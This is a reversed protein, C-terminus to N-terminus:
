RLSPATPAASAPPTSRAGPEMPMGVGGGCRGRRCAGLSGCIAALTWASGSAPVELDAQLVREGYLRQDYLKFVVFLSQLACACM